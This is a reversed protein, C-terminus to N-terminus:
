DTAPPTTVSPSSVAPVEVYGPLPRVSLAALNATSMPVASAPVVFALPEATHASFQQGNTIVASRGTIFAAFPGAAVAVGVTAGTNGEGEVRTGDTLAIRRGGLELWNFALEMKASKGFMGKGTRYTVTAEGFTGRPIVVFGDQVVDFYTAIRVKDGVRATKSSVTYNPTVVVETNPKLIISRSAAEPAANEAKVEQAAAPLAASALAIFSLLNRM